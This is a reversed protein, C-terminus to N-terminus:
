DNGKSGANRYRKLRENLEQLLADTEDKGQKELLKIAKEETEIAGALDGTRFLAEALTDLYMPDDGKTLEVARRAAQLALKAVRPDPENELGPEIVDWFCNNLAGANDKHTEILKAGLDLAPEVDGGHCLSAFKLSAFEDALEPDNGTAEDIAAVVAKYNKDRYLPYVKDRVVTAKREKIKAALRQKAIEGLEWQGSTIKALPEGLENPHGIWSITRDHIIFATPIGNEEAASMWGTAMAGDKPDGNEPVADLALNYDMKDGMEDVFPQVLKTDREWVDIGVFQVGKDKYQHALETLHPISARCPGCWTAWFEVVYTQGPEFQKIEAGKIWSSVTLPPAADGVNLIEAAEVGAPVLWAVIAFLAALVKRM